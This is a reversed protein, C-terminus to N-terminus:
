ALEATDTRAFASAIESALQQRKIKQTATRPFEDNWILYSAIRKHEALARNRARMDAVVSEGSVGKKPRLVLVLREDALEVEPWIFTSAFVCLEECEENDEFAGEVDEPYVNKGGATVIMNRARGVLRLHGSADIVGLDGTRLWGDQLIEDNLEPDDLYGKMVSRGRAYVEGVGAENKERIDIEVGPVPRGVTDGRFPKLDNVTLVV